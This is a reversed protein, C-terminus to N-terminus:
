SASTTKALKRSQDLQHREKNDDYFELLSLLEMLMRSAEKGLQADAFMTVRELGDPMFALSLADAIDSSNTEMMNNLLGTRQFSLGAVTNTFAAPAVTGLISDVRASLTALRTKGIMYEIKTRVKSLLLLADFDAKSAGHETAGVRKGAGGTDRIRLKVTLGRQANYDSLPRGDELEVGKFM